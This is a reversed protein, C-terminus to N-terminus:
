KSASGTGHTVGYGFLAFDGLCPDGPFIDRFHATIEEVTTLDAQRRSTLGLELAQTHTHVDLPILLSAPDIDKWIGLDVKGDDRVFWRRMMNIKKEAAKPSPKQGYILTRFDARPIAQLSTMRSYLEKLRTCIQAVETWMVTRHASVPENRYEGAMVYDYPKWDMEDFLRKCDRFIMPRRGWAFHAAFVGAIEVDQLAAGSDKFHRPFAIPDEQFYLPDNYTVAWQMLLEKTKNDLM